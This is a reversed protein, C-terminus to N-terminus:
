KKLYDEVNRAPSIVIHLGEADIKRTQYPNNNDSDGGWNVRIYENSGDQYNIDFHTIDNSKILRDFPLLRIESNWNDTYSSNVNANVTISIGIENASLSESYFGDRFYISRKVDSAYFMDINKADITIVECNELVLDVTKVTRM